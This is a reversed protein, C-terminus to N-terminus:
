RRAARHWLAPWGGTGLWGTPVLLGDSAIRPWFADRSGGAEEADPWAREWRGDVDSLSSVPYGPVVVARPEAVRTAPASVPGSSVALVLACLMGTTPRDAIARALAPDGTRALHGIAARVRRAVLDM